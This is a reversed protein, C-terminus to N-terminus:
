HGTRLFYRTIGLQFQGNLLRGNWQPAASGSQLATRRSSHRQQGVLVSFDARWTPAFQVGLYTRATPMWSLRNKSMDGDAYREVIGEETLISGAANRRIHLLAGLGLGFHWRGKVRQTRWELPIAIVSYRGHHRISRHEIETGQVPGVNVAVTDGTIANIEISQVGETWWVQETAEEFELRHVYDSVNFGVSWQQGWRRVELSVGGAASYDTVFNESYASLSEDSFRFHSLTAGGYVRVAFASRHPVPDPVPMDLLARNGKPSLGMWAFRPRMTQLAEPDNQLGQSNPVASPNSENSDSDAFAVNPTLRAGGEGAVGGQQRAEDIVSALTMALADQTTPAKAQAAIADLESVAEDEPASFAPVSVVDDVVRETRDIVATLTEPNVTGESNVSARQPLSEVESTEFVETESPADLRTDTSVETASTLGTEGRGSTAKDANLAEEEVANVVPHTVEESSWPTVTLALVAAVGVGMWVRVDSWWAWHAPPPLMGEVSNWLAEDQSPTAAGRFASLKERIIDEWLKM